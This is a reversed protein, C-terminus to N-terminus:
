DHKGGIKFCIVLYIIFFTSIIIYFLIHIPNSAMRLAADFPDSPPIDPPCVNKMVDEPITINHVISYIHLCEWCTAGDCVMPVIYSQNGIQFEMGRHEECWEMADSVVDSYLSSPSFFVWFFILFTLFMPLIWYVVYKYEMRNMDM